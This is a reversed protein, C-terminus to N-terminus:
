GQLARQGSAREWVTHIQGRQRGGLPLANGDVDPLGAALNAVGAPFEVAEFMTLLESTAIHVKAIAIKTKDM